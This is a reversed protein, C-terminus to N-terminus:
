AKPSVRAKLLEHLERMGEDDADQKAAIADYGGSMLARAVSRSFGADQTLKREVDRKLMGAAKVADITASENMPFTVVSVEWLEAELILRTDGKWEDRLVRYGISLGNLADMKLLKAADNGRPIDALEGELHLGKEDESIKRWAGIVENPNHQWLMRAKRGSAISNAFAGPMVVDGGRDVNGFVSGYGIITRGDGEAKVELNLFKKEM